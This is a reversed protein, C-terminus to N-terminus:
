LTDSKVTIMSENNNVLTKFEDMLKRYSTILNEDIDYEGLDRLFKQAQGIILDCKKLLDDDNILLVENPLFCYGQLDIQEELLAFATIKRSFFITMKVLLERSFNYQNSVEAM